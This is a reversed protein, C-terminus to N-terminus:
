RSQSAPWTPDCRPSLITFRLWARAYASRLQRPTEGVTIRRDSGRAFERMCSHAPMISPHFANSSPTCIVVVSIELSNFSRLHKAPQLPVEADANLYRRGATSSMLYVICHVHVKAVGNLAAIPQIIRKSDCLGFYSM